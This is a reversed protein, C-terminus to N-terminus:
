PKNAIPIFTRYGIYVTVSTSQSHGASDIATLTLTHLGPSLSHTFLEEDTELIGDLNSSWVLASGTLIGDEEDTAMGRLIVASGPEFILPNNNAPNTTIIVWPETDPLTIAGDTDDSTTYFGDRAAVRLKGLQAGGLGMLSTITFSTDNIGTALTTWTLGNDRSYFLDYLLKDSDADSGSWTIQTGIALPGNNPSLITVQPPHASASREAAVQNSQVVQIKAVNAPMPLIEVFPLRSLTGETGHARIPQTALISGNQDLLQLTFPTPAQGNSGSQPSPANAVTDISRIEAAGTAQDIVGGVLLYTSNAPSSYNRPVGRVAQKQLETTTWTLNCPVGVYPLMLCYEYPSVWQSPQYGMLPFGTDWAIMENPNNSIVGPNRLNDPFVDIGYYGKPDVEALRCPNSWPYAPDPEGEQNNCAVHYLGMAHGLEHAFISSAARYWPVFANVGTDEMRVFVAQSPIDAARGGFSMIETTTNITPDVLGVYILVPKVLYEMEKYYLLELELLAAIQGDETDFAWEVAHDTGHGDPYLVPDHTYYMDTVPLYRRADQIIVQCAPNDRCIYEPAPSTPGNQHIHLPVVKLELPDSSIFSVTKSQMVKETEGSSLDGVWTTEIELDVSGYRTWENPAWFWLSDDRNLRNGGDIKFTFTDLNEPSKPSKALEVGNKYASLTADLLDYKESVAEFYVRVITPRKAILPMDSKINQIGQSVEIGTIQPPPPTTPKPTPTPHSTPTPTDPPPPPPPPPICIPPLCPPTTELPAAAYKGTALGAPALTTVLLALGLVIIIIFFFTYRGM